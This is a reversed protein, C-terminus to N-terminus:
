LHGKRRFNTNCGKSSSAECGGFITSNAWDAWTASNAVNSRTQHSNSNHLWTSFQKLVLQEICVALLVHCELQQKVTLSCLADRHAHTNYHSRLRRNLCLEQYYRECSSTFECRRQLGQVQISAIITPVDKGCYAQLMAVRQHFVARRNFTWSHQAFDICHPTDNRSKLLAVELATAHWLNILQQLENVIGWKGSPRPIALATSKCIWLVHWLRMSTQSERIVRKIEFAKVSNHFPGQHPNSSVVGLVVEGRVADRNVKHGAISFTSSSRVSAFSSSGTERKIWHVM